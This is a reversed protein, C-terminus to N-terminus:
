RANLKKQAKIVELERGCYLTEPFTQCVSFTIAFSFFKPLKCLNLKEEEEDSEEEKLEPETASDYHSCLCRHM